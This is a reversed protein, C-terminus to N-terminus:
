ENERVNKRNGDEMGLVNHSINEEWRREEGSGEEGGRTEGGKEEGRREEMWKGGMEEWQVRRDGPVWMAYVPKSM